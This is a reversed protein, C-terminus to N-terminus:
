ANGEVPAKAAQAEKQSAEIEDKFRDLYMKHFDIPAIYLPPFGGASVANAMIQRVFPFAQRPVEIFVLPHHADQPVSKDLTAVVGYQVECLFLTTKGEVIAEARISLIVEYTNDEDPLKRADLGVAVDMQPQAATLKLSNPADPNEFSLDRVYQAAITLPLEAANAPNPDTPQDAM